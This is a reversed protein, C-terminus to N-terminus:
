TNENSDLEEGLINRFPSDIGYIPSSKDNNLGKIAYDVMTDITTKLGQLDQEYGDYDFGIGYILDLYSDKIKIQEQLDAVFTDDDVLATKNQKYLLRKLKAIEDKQKYYKEYIDSPSPLVVGPIESKVEKLYKKGWKDAYQLDTWNKYFTYMDLISDLSKLDKLDLTAHVNDYEKSALENKCLDVIEKLNKFDEDKVRKNM